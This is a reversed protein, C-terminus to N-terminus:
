EPINLVMGEQLIKDPGLPGNPQLNAQALDDARSDTGYIRQALAIFGLSAYYADVTWLRPREPEPLQNQAEDSVTDREALEQQRRALEANYAAAIEATTMGETNMQWEDMEEVIVAVAAESSVSEGTVFPDATISQVETFDGIASDVPVILTDAQVWSVSYGIDGHGGSASARYSELYVTTIEFPTHTIVLEVQTREDMWANFLKDWDAPDRGEPDAIISGRRGRGPFIGEWAIRRPTMGRPILIDGLDQVAFTLMKASREVDIKQPVVPLVFDGRGPDTFVIRIRGEPM